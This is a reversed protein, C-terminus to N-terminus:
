QDTEADPILLQQGPTLNNPDPITNAQLISNVTVGYVRAITIMTDDSAVTHMTQEPEITEVTETEATTADTTTDASESTEDGDECNPITLLQGPQIISVETLGNEALLAALSVDYELSLSFLTDGTAIEYDCDDLVIPTPEVDVVAEDGEDTTETSGDDDCNPITLIQGPQIISAETLSNASLLASLAIDNNLAIRFLNDGDRVEYECDGVVIASGEEATPTPQLTPEVSTASPVATVQTEQVSVEPTIFTPETATPIIQPTSSAHVTTATPIVIATNTPAIENTPVIEDTPSSVIVRPTASAVEVASSDATSIDTANPDLFTVDSTPAITPADQTITIGGSNESGVTDFSDPAQRFCGALIFMILLPFTRKILM